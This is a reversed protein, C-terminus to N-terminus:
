GAVAATAASTGAADRPPGEARRTRREAAMDRMLSQRSKRLVILSRELPDIAHANHARATASIVSPLLGSGRLITHVDEVIDPRNACYAESLGDIDGTDIDKGNLADRLLHRLAPKRGIAILDAIMRESRAIDVAIAAIDRLFCWEAPAFPAKDQHIRVIDARYTAADQPDSFSRDLSARFDPPCDLLVARFADQLLDTGAADGDRAPPAHTKTM